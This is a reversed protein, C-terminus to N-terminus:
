NTSYVTLVSRFGLPGEQIPQGPSTWALPIVVMQPIYKSPHQHISWCAQLRGPQQDIPKCVCATEAPELGNPQRQSPTIDWEGVCSSAQDLWALEPLGTRFQHHFISFSALLFLPLPSAPPFFSTLFTFRFVFVFFVPFVFIGWRLLKRVQHRASNLESSFTDM